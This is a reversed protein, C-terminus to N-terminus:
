KSQYPGHISKVKYKFNSDDLMYVYFSKGGPTVRLVIHGNYGSVRDILERNAEIISPHINTAFFGEAFSLVHALKEPNPKNAAFCHGLVIKPDFNHKVMQSGWSNAALHHNCKFAELNGSGIFGALYKM